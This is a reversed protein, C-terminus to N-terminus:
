PRPEPAEIRAPSGDRIIIVNVNSLSVPCAREIKGSMWDLSPSVPICSGDNLVAM